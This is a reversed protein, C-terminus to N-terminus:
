ERNLWSDRDFGADALALDEERYVMKPPRTPKEPKPWYRGKRKAESVASEAFGPERGVSAITAAILEARHAELLQDAWLKLDRATVNHLKINDAALQEKVIRMARQWALM